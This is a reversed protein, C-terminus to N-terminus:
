IRKDVSEKRKKEDAYMADLEAEAMENIIRVARRLGDKYAETLADTQHEGQIEDTLANIIRYHEV